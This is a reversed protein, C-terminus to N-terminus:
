LNTFGSKCMKEQQKILLNKQIEFEKFKKIFCCWERIQISSRILNENDELLLSQSEKLKDIQDEAISILNKM